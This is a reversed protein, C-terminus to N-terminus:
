YNLEQMRFLFMNGKRKFTNNQLEYSRMYENSEPVVIVDRNFWHTVRYRDVGYKDVMDFLLMGNTCKGSILQLARSIWEQGITVTHIVQCGNRLTWLPSKYFSQGKNLQFTHEHVPGAGKVTPSCSGGGLESKPQNKARERTPRRNKVRAVPRLQQTPRRQGYSACTRRPRRQYNAYLRKPRARGTMVLHFASRVSSSESGTCRARTCKLGEGLFPM